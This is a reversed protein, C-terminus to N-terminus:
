LSVPDVENWTVITYGRKPGYMGLSEDYHFKYHGNMKVSKSVSAGMFDYESFGGGDLTLNAHPSYVTGAFEANGGVKVELNSNLGWYAFAGAKGTNNIISKGRLDATAGACYLNLSSNTAITICGWGSLSINGKVFFNVDGIVLVKKNNLIFDGNYTWNNPGQIIYDYSVGGYVMGATPLWQFYTAGVTPNKVDPFQVNMDDSTWGPQTKGKNSPDAHWAKSGVTGNAGLSVIGGPGTSAKGYIDANGVNILKSNTAVDGNDRSKTPDYKGSLDSYLPNTSDYSDTKINKGNLDILGKAVMGKAFLADNTTLVRVVRPNPLYTGDNPNEVWGESIIAPPEVNANVYTKYMCDGVVKSKVVNTGVLQWGDRVRNTTNYNLHAMAEEIGAEAVSIAGNWAMSRVVSLNQNAVLQLYSGLTIGALAMVVVVVILVSGEQRGQRIRM